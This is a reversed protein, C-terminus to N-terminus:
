SRPPTIAPPSVYDPVAEALPDAEGRALRAAGLRAVEMPHPSPDEHAWVGGEPLLQGQYRLVGNGCVALRAGGLCIRRLVEGLHGPEWAADRSLLLRVEQDDDGVEATEAGRASAFLRAYVRGQAADLCALVPGEARPAAAQALAALSSVMVLPIGLAFCLGKATAAGIRLGTFSGPGAGCAVGRLDTPSLGAEALSEAVLALLRDSHTTVQQRRVAVAGTSTDLVCVGCLPTSTDLALIKVLVEM